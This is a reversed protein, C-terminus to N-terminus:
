GIQIEVDASRITAQRHAIIIITKEGRYRNIFENIIRESELDLASTAEDMLLIPADKLIARAIAIRQREGGSLNQGGNELITDYGDPQRQIFEHAGAAKAASVIDEAGADPNGYSINEAISVHYLYPEQPVYATLKRVAAYGIERIDKGYLLIKGSQIPYFGLLLKMLTSKGCGTRGTLATIIGNDIALNMDEFLKTGDSYCFNVNDFAVAPQGSAFDPLCVPEGVGPEEELDLFEFLDQMYVLREVLEPVYKGMQLFHYSFSSYIVYVAALEGLKVYGLDAMFIGVALFLIASLLDFGANLSELFALYQTRKKQVRCLKKLIGEYREQMQHQLGYIRIVKSGRLIDSFTGTEEAKFDMMKKSVAKIPRNMLLNIGFLICNLLILLFAMRWNMAAMATFYVVVSIFPTLVRRFRSGYVDAAQEVNFTLKSLFSGQVNNQYADIPLRLAKKYVSKQLVASVRKAEDNYVITFFRWFGILFAGALFGGAILGLIREYSGSEMYGYLNKVVYSTLIDLGASLAAMAFISVLYWLSRKEMWKLARWLVKGM